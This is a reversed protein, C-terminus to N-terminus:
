NLDKLSHQVVVLTLHVGPLREVVMEVELPQLYM